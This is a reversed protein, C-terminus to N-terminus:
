VQQTLPQFTMPRQIDQGLFPIKARQHQEPSKGRKNLSHIMGKQVLDDLSVSRSQTTQRIIIDANLLQAPRNLKQTSKTLQGSYCQHNKLSKSRSNHSQASHDAHYHLSSRVSYCSRCVHIDSQPKM